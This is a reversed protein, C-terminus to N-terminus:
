VPRAQGDLADLVIRPPDILQLANTLFVPPRISTVQVRMTIVGRKGMRAPLKALTVAIRGDSSADRRGTAVRTTAPEHSKCESQVNM